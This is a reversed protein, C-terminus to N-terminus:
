DNKAETHKRKKVEFEEIKIKLEEIQKYLDQISEQNYNNSTSLKDNLDMQEIRFTRLADIKIDLLNYKEIFDFMRKKGTIIIFLEWIIILIILITNIIDM